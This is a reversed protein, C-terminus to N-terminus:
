CPAFILSLLRRCVQQMSATQQETLPLHWEGKEDAAAILISQLTTASQSLQGETQKVVANAMTMITSALSGIRIAVFILHSCPLLALVLAILNLGALGAAGMLPQVRVERQGRQKNCHRKSNGTEALVEPGLQSHQRCCAQGAAFTCLM